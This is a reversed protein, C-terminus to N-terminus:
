GGLLALREALPEYLARGLPTLARNGRLPEDLLRIAETLAPRNEEVYAEGPGGGVRVAEYFLRVNALAHYAMLVRSLPREKRVPPSWYLRGDSGDDVPGVRALIYFYQHACEHVLVEAIETPTLPHCLHVTGPAHLNSGSVVRFGPKPACVVLHRLVREVWELYEPSSAALIGFAEDISEVVPPGVSALPRVGGFVDGGDGYPIGHEPLLLVDRGIGVATLRQAGRADWGGSAPDWWASGVAGDPTRVLVRREDGSVEVRVAEMLWPGLRLPASPLDAAWSGPRGVETLRTALQVAAEVPSPRGLERVSQLQGLCPGWLNEFTEPATTWLEIFDVLGKSAAALDVGHDRVLMSAMAQGQTVVVADLWSSDFGDRPLSFHKAWDSDSPM